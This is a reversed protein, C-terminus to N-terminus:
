EFSMLNAPQSQRDGPRAHVALSLYFLWDRFADARGIRLKYEDRKFPNVLLIADGPAAGTAATSSSCTSSAVTTSSSTTSDFRNVTWGAVCVM